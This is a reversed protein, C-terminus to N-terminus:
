VAFDTYIRKSPAHFALVINKKDIGKAVLEKAIVLNTGDHQLYVRGDSKVDIHLFCGYTRRDNLWGNSYLLYHGREDDIILDNEIEPYSSQGLQSIEEVLEKVLKKHTEITDM